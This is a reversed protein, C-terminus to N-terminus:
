NFPAMTALAYEVAVDSQLPMGQDIRNLFVGAIQRRYAQSVGEREVLSSLTLVQQVTLKQKKIKKYYPTLEDNTHAVM